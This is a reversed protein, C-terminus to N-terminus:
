RREDATAIEKRTQERLSDLARAAAGSDISEAALRIGDRLDREAGAVMLAAGANLLVIDRRPGREGGLVGRLLAAGESADAGPSLHDAPARPLGVEEPTILYSRMEGGRLETVGTAGVTSLEDLGDAGHAVLARECGLERLAEAVPEMVAPDFVGIVQFPAGAPNTLPGLLNFITRYPLERRVPAAHRMAPHHAQAFLFGIGCEEICAAVTEPGCDIRVGLAELVDASGCASTMARNGHKAVGVGAGAVVFAATTSINFTPVTGGGTGCTDVLPSRRAHVRVAAERMGRAFGAIEAATEGKMRLATLLAGVLAASAEGAMIERMAGAAQEVTLNKGGAAQQLAERIM